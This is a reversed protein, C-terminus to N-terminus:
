SGSKGKNVHTDVKNRDQASMGDTKVAGGQRGIQEARRLDENSVAM